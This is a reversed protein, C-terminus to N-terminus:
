PTEPKDPHSADAHQESQSGRVVRLDGARGELLKLESRHCIKPPHHDRNDWVVSMWTLQRVFNIVTGPADPWGRHVVRDGINKPSDPPIKM